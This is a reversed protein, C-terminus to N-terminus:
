ADPSAPPSSAAPRRRRGSGASARGSESIWDTSWAPALVTKVDVESAGAARAADAVRARIADMAPCGSYTPTITIVARADDDVEVGRLIGLDEVTVVIIEPDVVAAVADRIAKATRASEMTVM